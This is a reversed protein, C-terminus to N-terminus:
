VLNVYIDDVSKTKKSFVPTFRGYHKQKGAKITQLFQLIFNNEEIYEGVKIGIKIFSCIFHTM